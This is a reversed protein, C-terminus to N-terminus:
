RARSTNRSRPEQQRARSNRSRGRSSRPSESAALMDAFRQQAQHAIEIVADLDRHLRKLRRLRERHSNVM